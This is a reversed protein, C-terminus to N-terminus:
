PLGRLPDAWPNARTVSPQVQNPLVGGYGKSGWAAAAAVGTPLFMGVWYRYPHVYYYRGFNVDSYIQGSNAARRLTDSVPGTLPALMGTQNFQGTFPGNAM